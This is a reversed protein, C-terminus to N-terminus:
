CCARYYTDYGKDLSGNAEHHGQQWMPGSTDTMYEYDVSVVFLVMYKEAGSMHSTVGNKGTKPTPESHTDRDDDTGSAPQLSEDLEEESQRMQWSQTNENGPSASDGAERLSGVPTNCRRHRHPNHAKPTPPEVSAHSGDGKSTEIASKSHTTLNALDLHSLSVAVQSNILM